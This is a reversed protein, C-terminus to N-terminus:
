PSVPLKWIPLNDPLEKSKAKEDGGTLHEM